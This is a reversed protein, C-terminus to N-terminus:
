FNLPHVLSRLRMAERNSGVTLDISISWIDTPPCGSSCTQPGLCVTPTPMPNPPQKQDYYVFALNHVDRVLVNNNRMLPTGVGNWQFTIEQNDRDVFSFTTERAVVVCRNGRIMRMEQSMRDLAMRGHYLAEQLNTGSLLSRSAYVFVGSAVVALIGVVVISLILEILTVGKENLGPRLRASRYPSSAWGTTKLQKLFIVGQKNM